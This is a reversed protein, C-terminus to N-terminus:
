YAADADYADRKALYLRAAFALPLLLIGFPLVAAAVYLKKSTALATAIATAVATLGSLGSTWDNTM